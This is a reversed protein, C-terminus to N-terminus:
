VSGYPNSSTNVTEHEAKAKTTADEVVKAYDPKVDLADEVREAAKNAAEAAPNKAKAQKPPSKKAFLWLLAFGFAVDIWAAKFWAKLKSVM